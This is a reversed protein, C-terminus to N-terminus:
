ATGLLTFIHIQNAVLGFRFTVCCSCLVIRLECYVILTIASNSIAVLCCIHVYMCLVFSAILRSSLFVCM